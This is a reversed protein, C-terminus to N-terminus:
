EVAWWHDYVKRYVGGKLLDRTRRIKKNAARKIFKSARGKDAIIVQNKERNYFPGHLVFRRGTGQNEEAMRRIRHKYRRSKKRRVARSKDKEPFDEEEAVTVAAEAESINICTDEAQITASGSGNEYDERIAGTVPATTTNKIDM